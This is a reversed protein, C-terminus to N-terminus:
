QVHQEDASEDLCSRALAERCKCRAERRTEAPEIGPQQSRLGAMEFVVNRERPALAPDVFLLDVLSEVLKFCDFRLQDPLRVTFEAKM